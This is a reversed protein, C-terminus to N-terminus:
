HGKLYGSISTEQSKLFDLFNIGRYKCTQEISLLILYNNISKETFAGDYIRRHKAFPKIAHEANNNNWPIGDYDLFTFLKHENKKFREQYSIALDSNYKKDLIFNKFFRDVNKRYKNLYRKKSGYKDITNIIERLLRGFEGAMEQLEVNLQNKFLDGNLDRILHILCKQQPCEIADYGSYFDSILVGEFGKLLDNLFDSERNPRFLYFVTDMNTFVWVYANVGRINVKTEDAHLLKGGKLEAGLNHYTSEYYRAAIIKFNSAIHTNLWFGFVEHLEKDIAALSNHLSINKYVTWIILTHGFKSLRFVRLNDPTFTKKCQICYYRRSKYRVIWKKVGGNFLKLDYVVRSKKTHKHFYISHCTPCHTPPSLCIEKNVTLTRRKRREERKVGKRVAVSTRLYVKTRQYDFYACKNVIYLDPFFFDDAKNTKFGFEHPFESKLDDTYAIRKLEDRNKIENVPINRLAKTVAHLVLCDEMNYTVLKNKLHKEGTMKWNNRWVLSELGTANQETWNQGLYRGIDKLGNTYTPFYINAYILSLVNVMCSRINKLLEEDKESGYKKSMKEVFKTEYSGYHLLTFEGHSKVVSLFEQWITEEDNQDDAWFSFKKTSDGKIVLVGILYYFDQDPIGEVDLFMQTGLQRVEPKEVVYIKDDRIALAKLSHYYKPPQDEKGKRRRRPRYTYSFQTVTFIGKMNHTKIEKESMGGLLSLHDQEKAKSECEKQFPCYPCHKNLIVPPQEPNSDRISTYLNRLVIGVDKYLPELKIKHTNNGSGVIIGSIPKDKQFKSLVYGIFALQLKQEKSIKHTGVVLTPIYTHMKKLLMEKTRVISDAYAELDDFSLNVDLLMPTGKKMGDSSYPESEPTEMKIKSFYETRNKKTTEELAAIYEHPVGNNNKGLLLYAKLRCQTYAVAVESTIM